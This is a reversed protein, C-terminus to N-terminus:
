NIIHNGIIVAVLGLLISLLTYLTYMGYEGAGIMTLGEKSFTSFTTFGGCLGVTLMLRVENSLGMKAVLGNFLGILFCGLINCVFTGLPFGGQSPVLQSILYRLTSGLGGGIFILLYNM